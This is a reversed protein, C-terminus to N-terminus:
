EGTKQETRLGWVLNAGWLHRDSEGRTGFRAKATFGPIGRKKRSLAWIAVDPDGRTVKSTRVLQIRGRCARDHLSTDPTGTKGKSRGRLRESLAPQLPNVWNGPPGLCQSRWGSQLGEPFCNEKQLEICM